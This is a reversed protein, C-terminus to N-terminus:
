SEIEGPLLPEKEREIGILTTTELKNGLQQVAGTVNAMSSYAHTIHKNLTGLQENVRKYDQQIARLMRFVERSKTAIKKGEHSLLITQLHMYLTTPSVIYVRRTKAYDVLSVDNVIEYFVSESPVYMLAFDMTGEEPLIYKTSIADIHKKVDRVFDKRAIDRDKEQELKMMRQFNEMPFKSDIPLLGADTQLAADVTNGSRFKYQIHLSQKPFMQGILDKLVQEGINGRLKPSRLFEQLDKMSRGVESFAGAERKLEGIVEAAKTLREHIEKTHQQLTTSIRQDSRIATDSLTQRLEKLDHQTSKVWVMLSTDEKKAQMADMMSKLSLFLVGGLVLLLVLLVVILTLM